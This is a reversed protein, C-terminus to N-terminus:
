RKKLMIKRPLKIYCGARLSNHKNANRFNKWRHYPLSSSARCTGSACIPANYLEYNRIAISKNARKDGAVFEVNFVTNIKTSDYRQMVSHVHEFMIESADELFRHPEVHKFNDSRGDSYPKRIGNRHRALPIRIRRECARIKWACIGEFERVARYM